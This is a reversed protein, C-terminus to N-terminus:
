SGVEKRRKKRPLFLNITMLIGGSGFFLAGIAAIIMMFTHGNFRYSLDEGLLGMWFVLGCAAGLALTGLAFTIQTLISEAGWLENAGVAIGGGFFLMAVLGVWEGTGIWILAGAVVFAVCILTVMSWKFRHKRVTTNSSKKAM